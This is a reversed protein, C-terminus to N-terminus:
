TDQGQPYRVRQACGDAIVQLDGSAEMRNLLGLVNDTGEYYTGVFHTEDIQRALQFREIDLGADVYTVLPVPTDGGADYGYLGVADCLLVDTFTGQFVQYHNFTDLLAKKEAQGTMPDYVQAYTTGETDTRVVLFQGDAQLYVDQSGDFVDADLKISEGSNGDKDYSVMSYRGNDACYIIMDEGLLFLRIEPEGIEKEWFTGEFANWFLLRMGRSGDPPCLAAVCGTDSVQFEMTVAEAPPVIRASVSRQSGDVRCSLVQYFVESPMDDAPNEDWNKVEMLAYVREGSGAVDLVDVRDGYETFTVTDCSYIYQVFATQGTETETEQSMSGGPIGGADERDQGGEQEGSSCATVGFWLLVSLIVLFVKKYKGAKSDM